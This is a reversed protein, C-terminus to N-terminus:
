PKSRPTLGLMRYFFSGVAFPLAGLLKIGFWFAFPFVIYPKGALLGQQILRAAQNTSIMLLRPAPFRASLETKVYGPCVVSVRIGKPALLDRLAEGYAKVGAKSACYAPTIAMGRYAALSSILAIQGHQRARMGPMAAYVTNVVGLLNTELLARAESQPELQYDSGAIATVGANAILLDIPFSQDFTAVWENLKESHCVDVQGLEVSAGLRKCALAVEALREANRGILGLVVGPKAYKLALAKGIGASAGTIVISKPQANM